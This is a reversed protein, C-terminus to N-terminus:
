KDLVSKISNKLSEQLPYGAADAPYGVPKGRMFEKTLRGRVNDRAEMEEFIQKVINRLKELNRGLVSKEIFTIAELSQARQKLISTGYGTVVLANIKRKNLEELLKMGDRNSEDTPDLRLDVIVLEPPSTELKELAEQYDAAVEVQYKLRSLSANLLDRWDTADDVILVHRTIM